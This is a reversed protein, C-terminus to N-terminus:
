IRSLVKAAFSKLKNIKESSTNEVGHARITVSYKKNQAILFELDLQDDDGLFLAAANNGVDSFSIIEENEEPSNKALVKLFDEPSYKLPRDVSIFLKDSLGDGYVCYLIHKTQRMETRSISPDFDQAEAISLYKCFDQQPESCAVLFMIDIFLIFKLIVNLKM